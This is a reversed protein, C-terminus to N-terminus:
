NDATFADDVDDYFRLWQFINAPLQGEGTWKGLPLEQLQNAKKFTRPNTRATYLVRGVKEEGGVGRSLTSLLTQDYDKPKIFKIYGDLIEYKQSIPCTDDGFILQKFIRSKWM